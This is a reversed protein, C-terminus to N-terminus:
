GVDDVAKGHKVKMSNEYSNSGAISDVVGCIAISVDIGKAVGLATLCAIAFMAITSRRCNFLKSM